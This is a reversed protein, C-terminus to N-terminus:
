GVGIIIIFVKGATFLGKRSLAICDVSGERLLAHGTKLAVESETISVKRERKSLINTNHIEDPM